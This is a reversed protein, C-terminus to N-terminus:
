PYPGLGAMLFKLIQRTDLVVFIFPDIVNLKPLPINPFNFNELQYTM